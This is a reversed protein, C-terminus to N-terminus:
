GWKILEVSPEPTDLKCEPAKCVEKSAEKRAISKGIRVGQAHRENLKELILKKAKAIEGGVERKEGRQFMAEHERGLLYQEFLIEDITM